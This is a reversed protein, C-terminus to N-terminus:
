DSAQYVSLQNSSNHLLKLNLKVEGNINVRDVQTTISPAQDSWPFSWVRNMQLWNLVQKPSKIFGLCAAAWRPWSSRAQSSCTSLFAGRGAALTTQLRPASTKLRLFSKWTGPGPLDRTCECVWICWSVCVCVRVFMWVREQLSSGDDPKSRFQFLSKLLALM